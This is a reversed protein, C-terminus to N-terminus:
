CCRSLDFFHIAHCPLPCSLVPNIDPSLLLQVLGDKLISAVLCEALAHALMTQQLLTLWAPNVM